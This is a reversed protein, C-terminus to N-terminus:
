ALTMVETDILFLAQPEWALVLSESLPSLRMFNVQASDVFHSAIMDQELSTCSVSMMDAKPAAINETRYWAEASEESASAPLLPTPDINLSDKFNLTQRVAGTECDAM